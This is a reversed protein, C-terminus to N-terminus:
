FYKLGDLFAGVRRLSQEFLRLLHDDQLRIEHSKANIDLLDHFRHEPSSRLSFAVKVWTQWSTEAHRTQGASHRSAIRSYSQRWRSDRRFRRGFINKEYRSYSIQLFYKGVQQARLYRLRSLKEDIRTPLLRFPSFNNVAYRQYPVNKDPKAFHTRGEIILLHFMGRM